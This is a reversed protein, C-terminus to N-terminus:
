PSGTLSDAQDKGAPKAASKEGHQPLTFYFTAGQGLGIEAWVIGGHRQILRQVASLGPGSLDRTPPLRHFAKLWRYGRNPALGPRNDRVLFGRCDDTAPLAEFEIRARPLPETSKWANSLLISLVERLMAPDGEAKLGTGISFEVRRAPATRQLAAAIAHAQDSLDIEQRAMTARALRSQHLWAETLEETQRISWRLRRLYRRGKLDLRHAGADELAQCFFRIWRLPSRLRHSVAETFRDLEGRIVELERTRAQVGQVQRELEAHLRQLRIEAGRADTIDMGTGIVYEVTGDEGLHATASWAILRSAGDKALWDSEYAQHFDGAILDIFHPKPPTM